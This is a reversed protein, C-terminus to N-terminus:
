NGYTTYSCLLQMNTLTTMDIVFGANDVLAISQFSIPLHEPPIDFVCGVNFFNLESPLGGPTNATISAAVGPEILGVYKGYFSYEKVSEPAPAIAKVSTFLGGTTKQFLYVRGVNPLNEFALDPPNLYNEFPASIILNNGQLKLSSGFEGAPSDILFYNGINMVRRWERKNTTRNLSYYFHYAEGQGVTPYKQKFANPAGIILDNNQLSLSAGFRSYQNGTNPSFITQQETFEFGNYLFFKVAGVSSGVLLRQKEVQLSVGLGGSTADTLTQGTFFWTGFGALDTQNFSYDYIMVQNNNGVVLFENDTAACTPTDIFFNAPDFSNLSDLTLDIIQTRFFSNKNNYFLVLQTTNKYCAILFRDSGGLLTLENSDSLIQSLNFRSNELKYILIQGNSPVAFFNEESVITNGQSYGGLSLTQICDKFESPLPTGPFGAVNFNKIDFQTTDDSITSTLAVRVATRQKLPINAELVTFFTKSRQDKIQVTAKSLGNTLIVKVSNYKIQEKIDIKEGVKMSYPTNLLNKSTAIYKFNDEVGLRITASNPTPTNTGDYSVGKLGFNGNLDFGVGLVAGNLGSYGEQKCYKKESSPLYGLAFGPGGERPRDYTADFFVIAFGGSPIDKYNYRAYDFSVVIEHFTDLPQRNFFAINKDTNFFM